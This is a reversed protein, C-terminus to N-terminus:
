RDPFPPYAQIRRILWEIPAVVNVPELNVGSKITTYSKAESEPKNEPNAWRESNLNSAWAEKSQKSESDKPTEQEKQTQFLDEESHSQHPNVESHIVAEKFETNELYRGISSIGYFNCRNRSSDDPNHLDLHCFNNLCDFLERGMIKQVLELPKEAEKWLDIEEKEDDGNKIKEDIKTVCFALYQPLLNSVFPLRNEQNKEQNEPPNRNYRYKFEDFLDILLEHYSKSNEQNSEFRKPDLLFIIGDCSMLYDVIDRDQHKTEIVRADVNLNEYFEGPADIFRLTINFKERSMLNRPM